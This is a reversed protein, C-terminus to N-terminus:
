VSPGIYTMSLRTWYDVGASVPIAESASDNQWGDLRIYNGDALYVVSTIGAAFDSTSATQEDKYDALSSNNVRIGTIVRKDTGISAWTIKGTVLYLGTKRAYIRYNALDVQASVGAPRVDWLTTFAGSVSGVSQWNGSSTHTTATSLYMAAYYLIPRTKSAAGQELAAVRQELSLGGGSATAGPELLERRGFPDPFRPNSM